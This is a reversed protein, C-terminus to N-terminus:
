GSIEMAILSTMGRSQAISANNQNATNGNLFFAYTSSQCQVQVKYTVQSTTNPDDVGSFGVGGPMHDNNYSWGHGKFCIRDRSGDASGNLKNNNTYGAGGIDRMVRIGNGYDGTNTRVGAMGMSCMVLIKSSTASPTISISLDTIDTWSESNTTFRTGKFVNVVQLIKGVDNSLNSITTSGDSALVINNSSSSGHKLNTANLTAM